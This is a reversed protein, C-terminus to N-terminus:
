QSEYQKSVSSLSDPRSLLLARPGGFWPCVFVLCRRNDVFSPEKSGKLDKIAMFGMTHLFHLMYCGMAEFAHRIYYIRLLSELQIAALSVAEQPTKRVATFVAETDSETLGKEILPQFLNMIINCYKISIVFEDTHNM